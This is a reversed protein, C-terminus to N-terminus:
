PPFLQLKPISVTARRKRHRSPPSRIVMNGSPEEDITKGPVKHGGIAQERLYAAEGPSNLNGATTTMSAAGYQAVHQRMNEATEPAKNPDINADVHDPPVPFPIATVCAIFLPVVPVAISLKM